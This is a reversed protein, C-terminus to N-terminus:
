QPAPTRRHGSEDYDWETVVGDANTSKVHQLKGSPSYTYAQEFFVSGRLMKAVRILKGDTNFYGILYAYGTVAQAEAEEKTVKQRLRLPIKFGAFTRYYEVADHKKRDAMGGLVSRLILVLILIGVVALVGILIKVALLAGERGILTLGRLPRQM